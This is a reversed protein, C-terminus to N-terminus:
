LVHKFLFIHYVLSFLIVLETNHNDTKNTRGVKEVPKKDISELYPSSRITHVKKINM